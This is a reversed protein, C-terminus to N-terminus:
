FGFVSLIMRVELPTLFLLYLRSEASHTLIAANGDDFPEDEGHFVFTGPLDEHREVESGHALFKSQVYCPIIFEPRMLGQLGPCGLFEVIAHTSGRFQVDLGIALRWWEFQTYRIELVSSM